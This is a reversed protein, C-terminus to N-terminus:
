SIEWPYAWNRCWWESLYTFFRIDTVIKPTKQIKKLIKDTNKINLPFCCQTTQVVLIWGSLSNRHHPLQLPTTPPINYNWTQDIRCHLRFNLYSIQGIPPVGSLTKKLHSLTKKYQKYVICYISSVIVASGKFLNMLPAATAVALEVVTLWSQVVNLSLVRNSWFFHNIFDWALVTVNGVHAM